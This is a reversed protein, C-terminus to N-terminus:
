KMNKQFSQTCHYKSANIALCHWCVRGLFHLTVFDYPSPLAVQAIYKDQIILYFDHVRLAINDCTTAISLRSGFFTLKRLRCWTASHIGLIGPLLRMPTSGEKAFGLLASEFCM